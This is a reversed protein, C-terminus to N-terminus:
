LPTLAETGDDRQMRLAGRNRGDHPTARPVDFSPNRSRHPRVFRVDDLMQRGGRAGTLTWDKMCYAGGCLGAPPGRDTTVGLIGYDRGPDWGIAGM